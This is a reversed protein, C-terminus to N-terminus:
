GDSDFFKYNFYQLGVNLSTSRSLKPYYIRYMAQFFLETEDNIAGGGVSVIVQRINKEMYSITKSEYGKSANYESIVRIFDSESFSVDPYKRTSFGETAINLVGQYYFRKMTTEGSTFEDNQLVYAVDKKTVIFFTRSKSNTKYLSTDGKLILNAFVPLPTNNNDITVSFMDFHKGSETEFSKVQTANYSICKKDQESAKFCVESSLHSLDDTKIYGDMKVGDNTVIFGKEYTDALQATAFHFSFSVVLLLTIRCFKM